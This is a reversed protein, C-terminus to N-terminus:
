WIVAQQSYNADLDRFVAQREVSRQFSQFLDTCLNPNKTGATPDVAWSSRALAAVRLAVMILSWFEMLLAVHAAVICHHYRERNVNRYVLGWSIFLGHQGVEM